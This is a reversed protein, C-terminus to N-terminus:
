IHCPSIYTVCTLFVNKKERRVTHKQKPQNQLPFNQPGVLLTLVGRWQNRNVMPVEGRCPTPLSSDGCRSIANSLQSPRKQFPVDLDQKRNALQPHGTATGKGEWFVWSSKQSCLKKSEFNQRPTKQTWFFFYARGQLPFAIYSPDFSFHGNFFEAKKVCRLTATSSSILKFPVNGSAQPLNAYATPQFRPLQSRKNRCFCHSFLLLAQHQKSPLPLCYKYSTTGVIVLKSHFMAGGGWTSLCYPIQQDPTVSASFGLM